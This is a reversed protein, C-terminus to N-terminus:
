LLHLLLRALSKSLISISNAFRIFVQIDLVSKLESWFKVAEIREEEM